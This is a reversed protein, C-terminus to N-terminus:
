LLESLLWIRAAQPSAACRKCLDSDETVVHMDPASLYFCIESDTKDGSRKSSTFQHNTKAALKVLYLEYAYAASLSQAFRDLDAVDKPLIGQSLLIASAWDRPADADNKSQRIAEMRKYHSELGARRFSRIKEFDIGSSVLESAYAPVRGSRLQEFCGARCITNVWQRFDAPGLVTLANDVGYIARMAFRGPFHLYEAADARLVEFRHRHEDFYTPQSDALGEILEAVVLPCVVYSFGQQEFKAKVSAWHAGLGTASAAKSCVNTDCFYRM